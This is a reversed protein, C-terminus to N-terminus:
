TRRANAMEMLTPLLQDVPSIVRPRRPWAIALTPDDWRVGQGFGPVYAPSIQYHVVAGKTLTLFGHALGKPIFIANMHDSCLEVAHWQGFGPGPRLDAVVDWVKGGVCRVLKEEANPPNQFHLGRLTFARTNVSLSTQEPQFEIGQEAFSDRCFIRAFSGRADKIPLAAIEYVGPLPTASFKM